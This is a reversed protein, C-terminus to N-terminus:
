ALTPKKGLFGLHKFHEVIAKRMTKYENYPLNFEKATQKVFKSM